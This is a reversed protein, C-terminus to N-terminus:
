LIFISCFYKNFNNKNAEIATTSYSISKKMGFSDVVSILKTKHNRNLQIKAISGGGFTSKEFGLLDPMQDGNMDIMFRADSTGLSVFKSSWRTPRLVNGSGDNLGVFVGTNDFAVLDVLGDGNVDSALQVKNLSSFGEGVFPGQLISSCNFWNIGTDNSTLFATYVKGDSRFGVIDLLNDGNMDVLLRTNSDNWNGYNVAGFYDGDIPKILNALTLKVNSDLGGALLGENDFGVREKVGDGDLDVLMVPYKGRGHGRNNDTRFQGPVTEKADTLKTADVNYAIWIGGSPGGNMVVLDPRGDNDVDSLWRPNVVVLYGQNYGFNDSWKQIPKFYGNANLSVYVGNDAIGFLDPLGDANLDAVYRIHKNSDWGTTNSFDTTWKQATGFSITDDDDDTNSGKNLTVYVGDAGFAVLDALGDGNMDVAQLLRTECDNTINGGGCLDGVLTTSGFENVRTQDYEFLLPRLCSNSDSSACIQLRALMSINAVGSQKYTLEIRKLQIFSNYGNNVTISITKLLKSIEWDLLNKYFRRQVDSRSSSDYTFKVVRNAYSITSM